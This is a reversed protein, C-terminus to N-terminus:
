IVEGGAGGYFVKPETNLYPKLKTIENFRLFRHLPSSKHGAEGFVRAQTPCVEVCAPLLGERIRHYCFTCKDAVQKQPHLYRAGYPCAQICYRCGVCYDEDVLVVGDRSLFTAGVPCVQVCPAKRCHNCLKPVFFSRLIDSGEPLPPFGDIGGNPSDVDTEGDTSIVYREVWTRFFHPERPVNNETKCADACRGCGICKQIDIGMAYDHQDPDYDQSENARLRDPKALSFFAILGPLKGSCNRLFDRRAMGPSASDQRQSKM